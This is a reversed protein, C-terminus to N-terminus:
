IEYLMILTPRREDNWKPPINKWSSSMHLDHPEEVEYNSSGNKHNHM